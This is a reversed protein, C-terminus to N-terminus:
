FIQWHVIKNSLEISVSMLHAVTNALGVFVFGACADSSQGYERTQVNQVNPAFDTVRLYTLVVLFSGIFEFGFMNTAPVGEASMVLGLGRVESRSYNRTVQGVSAHGIDGVMNVVNVNVNLCLGYLITTALISAVLQATVYCFTRLVSLDRTLMLAFTVSPSLHCSSYDRIQNHSIFMLISTLSGFVLSTRLQDTPSLNSALGILIYMLTALLETRVSKWFQYSKLEEKLTPQPPWTQMYNLLEM